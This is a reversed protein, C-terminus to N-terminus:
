LEANAVAHGNILNLTPVNGIVFSVNSSGTAFVSVTCDTSNGSRWTGSAGTSANYTTVSPVARMEVPLKWTVFVGNSAAAYNVSAISGASIATGPVDGVNYTKAYYRQCLGIETTIPRLEFATAIPGAELQVKSIDFTGSQQGLSNTRANFSSGADFWFIFELFDDGNTGLTKGSISPVTIQATYLAWSTGLTKTATGISQVATSPSGGTGFIQQCEIAINKTADAKAYFSVTVQQGAFSRVGEIRQTHVAYNGSGASSLVVSRHFFTPEGPVATQGLTFTQQSPAITSGASEDGWRDALYRRGTSAGLSTGRQWIDYNGNILKNKGWSPAVWSTNYDTGDVKQLIQGATGGAPVGPGVIGGYALSAWATTGDGLKFKRTDTEIAMEGSALVPNAATWNTATDRRFQFRGNVSM